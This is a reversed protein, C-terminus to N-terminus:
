IEKGTSLDEIKLFDEFGDYQMPARKVVRWFIRDLEERVKDLSEQTTIAVWAGDRNPDKYLLRYM